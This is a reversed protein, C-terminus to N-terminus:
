KRGIPGFGCMCLLWFRLFSGSINCAVPCALLQTIEWQQKNCSGKSKARSIQSPVEQRWRLFCWIQCQRPPLQSSLFTLSLTMRITAASAKESHLNREPPQLGIAGFSNHLRPRSLSPVYTVASGKFTHPLLDWLQLTLGSCTMNAIRSMAHSSLLEKETIITQKEVELCQFLVACPHTWCPTRSMRSLVEIHGGKGDFNTSSEWEGLLNLLLYAWESDESNGFNVM